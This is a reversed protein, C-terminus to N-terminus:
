EVTGATIGERLVFCVRGVLIIYLKIVRNEDPGIQLETIKASLSDM